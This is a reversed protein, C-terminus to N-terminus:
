GYIYTPILKNIPHNYKISYTKFIESDKIFRRIIQQQLTYTKYHEFYKWINNYDCYLYNGDKLIKLLIKQQIKNPYEIDKNLINALKKARIYNKNYIFYVYRSDDTIYCCNLINIFWIKLEEESM